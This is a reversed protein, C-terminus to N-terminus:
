SSWIAAYASEMRWMVRELKLEAETNATRVMAYPINGPHNVRKRFFTTGDVDFVLYMANVARIVHPAAGYELSLLITGVKRDAADRHAILFTQTGEPTRRRDIKHWGERLRGTKGQPTLQRTRALTETAVQDVAEPFDFVTALKMRNLRNKMRRLDRPDVRIKIGPGRVVM